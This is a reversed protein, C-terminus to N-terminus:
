KTKELQGKRKPAPMSRREPNSEHGRFVLRTLVNVALEGLTAPDHLVGALDINGGPWPNGHAFIGQGHAFGIVQEVGEPLGDADDFRLGFPMGELADLRLRQFVKVTQGLPNRGVTPRQRKVELGRALDRLEGVQEIRMWAAAFDEREVPGTLQAAQISMM